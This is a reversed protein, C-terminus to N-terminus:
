ATCEIRSSSAGLSSSSGSVAGGMEADADTEGDMDTEMEGTGGGAAGESKAELEVEVEVKVAARQRRKSGKGKNCRGPGRRKLVADYVCPEDDRRSCHHCRPRAGDCRTMLMSQWMAIRETRRRMELEMELDM